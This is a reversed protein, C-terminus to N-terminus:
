EAPETSNEDAGASHEDDDASKADATERVEPRDVPILRYLRVLGLLIVLSVLAASGLLALTVLDGFIAQTPTWLWKWSYLVVVAAVSLYPGYPVYTRGSSLRVALGVLLACPPALLFVFVVAQWGLFSGIMGMLTVDGLGLAEQGMVRSAAERVIWTMGAGVALGTLSWAAGHWHAHVKIWPPIYPGALGPIAQNWDVWLPVLQLYGVATAMTVGVVAGTLTIADPILYFELDVVTAAVLFAILLFQFLLRWHIYFGSGEEPTQQSHLDIVCYVLGVYLGGTVLEVALAARRRLASRSNQHDAFLFGALPIEALRRRVASTSPDTQWISEPLDMRSIWNVLVRGILAGLAFVATLRLWLPEQVFFSFLWPDSAAITATHDIM